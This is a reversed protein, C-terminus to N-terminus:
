KKPKTSKSPAPAGTETAPEVESTTGPAPPIAPRGGSRKARPSNRKPQQRQGGPVGHGGAEIEGTVDEPGHVGDDELSRGRRKAKRAQRQQYAKDAESGPVPSRRIVFWQQGMSWLNSTSWYVLVGIPFNVGSFAFVLPLIYMLMKQQRAMPNDQAAPPMNKMTLQRQTFLTTASMIIILAATVLKVALDDSGLFTSSLSAGFIESSEAQAALEQTLPGISDNVYTGTALPELSSLVRFLAFFIPMQALIPLCSAFPSTGAEKYIAMMEQQMAQRSAPDTKGKYKKQLKQIEPQVLQMGRSAKIQRVFLPILLIRIVVVLAVISLLWTWGGAPDMGLWTLVDHARVMIWAVAVMIPSLLSDFFGM